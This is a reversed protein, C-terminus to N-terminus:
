AIADDTVNTSCHIRIWCKKQGPDSWFTDLDVVRAHCWACINYFVGSSSQTVENGSQETLISNTTTCILTSSEVTARAAGCSWSLSFHTCVNYGEFYRWAFHKEYFFSRRRYFLETSCTAM